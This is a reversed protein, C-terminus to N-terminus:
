KTSPTAAQLETFPQYPAGDCEEPTADVYQQPEGGLYIVVKTLPGDPRNFQMCVVYHPFSSNPVPKLAPPAILTGIFDARNTLTAQMMTVIQFRYNTPYINSDVVVDPQKKKSGFNLGSSCGALAIAALLLAFLRSPTRMAKHSPEPEIM